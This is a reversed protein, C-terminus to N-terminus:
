TQIDEDMYNLKILQDKTFFLLENTDKINFHFQVCIDKLEFKFCKMEHYEGEVKNLIIIKDIEYEDM